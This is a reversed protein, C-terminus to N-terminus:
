QGTLEHTQKRADSDDDPGTESDDPDRLDADHRDGDGVLGPDAPDAVDGAPSPAPPDASAHDSTDAPVTAVEDAGQETQGAGAGQDTAGMDRGSEDSDSPNSPTARDASLAVAGFELSTSEPPGPSAARDALATVTSGILVVTTGTDHVLEACVGAFWSMAGGDLDRDPEAVM